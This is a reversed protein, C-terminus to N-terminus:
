SLQPAPRLWEVVTKEIPLEYFDRDCRWRSLAQLPRHLPSPHVGFAHRQYFTFRQMMRWKKRSVWSGYSGVYDFEAWEDLTQPMPYGARAVEDAILSGPYPQYFFIPTEFQPSMRRLQKVLRMTAAVSEDPEGPFGVIFPFIAGIGHRVCQEASILVQEVTIDKEMWDLMQQSGSEVGIMVRRLGSRKAKAFLEDNMRTAQDARMTATWTISLGAALFADCIADVRKASTFFTEDQFALERFRYQAFLAAVERGMREPSLGVWGREYVFPDACFACRFRCGQSSIYDVQRQGKLQFYREVPILDYDHAPFENVDRLRRPPNVVVSGNRRFASGACGDLPERAALRAVIEAFTDEGQGAVTVDVGPEDLCATQFLSPHWGGWVVPLDPRKAKVARSVRLADRIPGGTLVTVGLCLAGDIRSLVTTLPDRELRADVIDVTYRAPDLASGVALLGLPMTYFVAHPNYLLIRHSSM